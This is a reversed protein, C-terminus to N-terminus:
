VAEESLDGELALECAIQECKEVFRDHLGKHSTRFDQATLEFRHFGICIYVREFYLHDISYKGARRDVTAYVTADIYVDDIRVPGDILVDDLSILASM